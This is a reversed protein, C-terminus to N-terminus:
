AVGLPRWSLGLLRVKSLGLVVDAPAHSTEAAEICGESSKAKFEYQRSVHVAAQAHSHMHITCAEARQDECRM